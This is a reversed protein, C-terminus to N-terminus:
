AAPPLSGVRGQTQGAAWAAEGEVCPVVGHKGKCQQSLFGVARGWESCAASCPP